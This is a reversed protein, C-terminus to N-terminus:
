GIDLLKDIKGVSSQGPHLWEKSQVKQIHKALDEPKKFVFQKSPGSDYHHTAVLGKGAPELRIHTLTPKPLSEPKPARAPSVSNLQAGAMLGRMSRLKPIAVPKM